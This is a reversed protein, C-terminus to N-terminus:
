QAVKFTVHGQDDTQTVQLTVKEGQAAASCTFTGGQEAKIEEPCTVTIGSVGTQKEMQAKISSELSTNDITKTCATAAVVLTCLAIWRVTQRM